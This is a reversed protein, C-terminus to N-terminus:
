LAYLWRKQVQLPSAEVYDNGGMSHQPQSHLVINGRVIGYHVPIVEVFSINDHLKGQQPVEAYAISCDM